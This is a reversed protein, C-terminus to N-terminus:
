KRSWRATNGHCGAAELEDRAAVFRVVDPDIPNDLSMVRVRAAWRRDGRAEAYCANVVLRHLWADFHDPPSPEVPRALGWAAGM